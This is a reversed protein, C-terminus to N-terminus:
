RRRSNVQNPSRLAHLQAADCADDTGETIDFDGADDDGVDDALLLAIVSMVDDDPPDRPPMRGLENCVADAQAGDIAPAGAGALMNFDRRGPRGPEKHGDRDPPKDPRDAPQLFNAFVYDAVADGTAIGDDADFRWHIGLYIRSQANELKAETFSDFTREVLPRIEGDSGVTVGNFEDSVFTFSIDDRGYFLALTEFVAAGFTAHGSTYAPFPPTFDTEGPRPNSAPAGLPTWEAGGSTADNGDADANRIGLIPRWFADDYKNNWATLGADAMAVNVLAFLRANEAETNGEQEAVARVMQNYLRPPTGLGPRGDYAWYIGIMTQEATRETPSNVGDGGLALVENYADTYEQGALFALRGQPTADDLRRAQFQDLTTVAFPAIEMAGAAYYGQNPHLPDAAHFGPL